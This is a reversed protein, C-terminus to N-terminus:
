FHPRLLYNWYYSFGILHWRALLLTFASVCGMMIGNHVWDILSGYKRLSGLLAFLVLGVALAPILTPLLLFLNEELSIGDFWRPLEPWFVLFPARQLAAFFLLCLIVTIIAYVRRIITAPGAM